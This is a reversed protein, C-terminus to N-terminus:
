KTPANLLCNKQIEGNKKIKQNIILFFTPFNTTNVRYHNRNIENNNLSKVM